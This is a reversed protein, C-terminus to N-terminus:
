YLGNAMERQQVDPKDLLATRKNLKSMISRRKRNKNAESSQRYQHSLSQQSPKYKQSDGDQNTTETKMETALPSHRLHKLGINEATTQHEQSRKLNEVTKFKTYM